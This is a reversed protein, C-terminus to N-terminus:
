SCVQNYPEERMRIQVKFARVVQGSDSISAAVAEIAFDGRLQYVLEVVVVSVVLIARRFLDM